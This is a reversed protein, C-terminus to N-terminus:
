KTPRTQRCCYVDFLAYIYEEIINMVSPLFNEVETLKEMTIEAFTRILGERRSGRCFKQSKSKGRKGCLYLNQLGDRTCTQFEQVQVM